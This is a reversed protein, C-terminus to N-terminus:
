LDHLIYSRYLDYNPDFGDFNKKESWQLEKLVKMNFKEAIKMTPITTAQMCACECGMEKANSLAKEFLKSAIGQGRRNRDTCLAEIFLAKKKHESVNKFVFDYPVIETDVEMINVLKASIREELIEIGEPEEYEEDRYVPFQSLLLFFNNLKGRSHIAFLSDLM